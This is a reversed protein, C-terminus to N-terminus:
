TGWGPWGIELRALGTRHHFRDGHVSPVPRTMSTQARLDMYDLNMRVHYGAHLAYGATWVPANLRTGAGSMRDGGPTTCYTQCFDMAVRVGRSDSSGTFHFSNGM